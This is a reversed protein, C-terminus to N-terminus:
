TVTPSPRRRRPKAGAFQEYLTRLAAREERTLAPDKEIAVLVAGPSGAFDDVGAPLFGAMKLLEGAPLYLTRELERLVDMTVPRSARAYTYYATRSITSRGPTSRVGFVDTVTLGLNNMQDRVRAMLRRQEKPNLVQARNTNSTPM